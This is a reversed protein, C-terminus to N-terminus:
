SNSDGSLLKGFVLTMKKLRDQLLTKEIESQQLVNVMEATTEQLIQLQGKFSKIEKKLESNLINLADNESKLQDIPM